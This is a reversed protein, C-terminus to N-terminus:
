IGLFMKFFTYMTYPYQHNSIKKCKYFSHFSVTDKPGVITAVWRFLNDGDPFASVSEDCSM